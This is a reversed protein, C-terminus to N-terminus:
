KREKRRGAARFISDRSLQEGERLRQTVARVLDKNALEKPQPIQDGYLERLIIEARGRKSQTRPKRSRLDQSNRAPDDLVSNLARSNTDPSQAATSAPQAVFLNQLEKFKILPVGQIAGEDTLLTGSPMGQLELEAYRSGWHQPLIPLIRGDDARAYSPLAGTFLHQHLDYLTSEELTPEFLEVESGDANEVIGMSRPGGRKEEEAAEIPKWLKVALIVALGITM